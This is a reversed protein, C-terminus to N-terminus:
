SPKQHISRNRVWIAPNGSYIGDASADKTLVSGVTIVANSHIRVGPCVVVRAGVWAGDQIEISGTMLGFRPDKYDHNGTLLYADQSVCVNSALRVDVLNDIRVGEGIWVHDGIALRWPYKINVRPKIVVHKGVRAGFARLITRKVANSPVLYSSFLIANVIYWVARRLSTGGPLYGRNDYASLDVPM